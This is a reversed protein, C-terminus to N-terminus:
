PPQRRRCARSLPAWSRRARTGTRPLSPSLRQLIDDVRPRCRRGFGASSPVPDSLRKAVISQATPGTYPPEGTLLEYLVCGLSYLDARGDLTADALAQEPSMYAPTGLALGTETLRDDASTELARAVGFDALM